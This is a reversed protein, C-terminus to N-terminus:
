SLDPTPRRGLEVGVPWPARERAARTESRNLRRLILALAALLYMMTGPIWMIIGSLVQDQMQSIGWERPVTAYYPYLPADALAIVVGLIMNAAATGLLLGLRALLPCRGGLRPGTGTVRWWLLVGAGFFTLHELDHLWGAGQAAGYLGPDHWGWVVAVSCLWVLGPHTAQRLARRFRAGPSFLRQGVERGAPLGWLIIPLPNALLLLAPAVMVILLHQIMHVFFLQSGLVDIASMLALGLVALGGLYSALRWGTALRRGRGRLRLWGATFLLGALALYLGVDLRLDWTTLLAPLQTTM